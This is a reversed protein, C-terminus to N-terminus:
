NIPCNHTQEKKARKEKITNIQWIIFLCIIMEVFYIDYVYWESKFMYISNAIETICTLGVINRITKSKQWMITPFLWVLYWQQCNTLILLFLILIINYKRLMYFINIKKKLLFEFCFSIYLFLFTVIFIEKVINMLHPNIIALVVYISKSYRETQPLMALLVGINKFYPIYELGLIVLFIM